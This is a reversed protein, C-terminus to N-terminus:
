IAELIDLEIPYRIVANFVDQRACAYGNYPSWWFAAFAEPNEIQDHM